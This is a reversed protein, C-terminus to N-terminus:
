GSDEAKVELEKRKREIANSLEVSMIVCGENPDWARCYMELAEEESIGKVAAILEVIDPLRIRWWTASLLMM